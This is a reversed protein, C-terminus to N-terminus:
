SGFYDLILKMGYKLAFVAVGGLALGIMVDWFIKPHNGTDRLKDIWDLYPYAELYEGYNDYCEGTTDVSLGTLKSIYPVLYHRKMCLNPISYLARRYANFDEESVRTTKM